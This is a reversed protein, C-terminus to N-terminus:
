QVTIGALSFQGPQGDRNIEEITKGTIAHMQELAHDDHLGSLVLSPFDISDVELQWGKGYLRRRYNLSDGDEVTVPILM